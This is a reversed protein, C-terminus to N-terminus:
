SAQVHRLRGVASWYRTLGAHRDGHTGIACRRARWRPIPGGRSVAGAPVEPPAARAGAMYLIACCCGPQATAAGGAPRGDAAGAGGVRETNHESGRRHRRLGGTEAGYVPDRVDVRRWRQGSNCGTCLLPAHSLPHAKRCLNPRAIVHAAGAYVAPDEDLEDLGELSGCSPCEDAVPVCLASLIPLRKAASFKSLKRLKPRRSHSNHEGPATLEASCLPCELVEEIAM